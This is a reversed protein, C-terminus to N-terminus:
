ESCPLCACRPRPRSKKLRRFSFPLFYTGLNLDGKFGVRQAITNAKEQLGKMKTQLKVQQSLLEERNLKIGGLWMQALLWAIPM